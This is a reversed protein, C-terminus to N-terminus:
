KQAKLPEILNLDPRCIKQDPYPTAGAYNIRDLYNLILPMLDKGRLHGLLGSACVFEDFSTVKDAGTMKGVMLIPVPEGSHILEGRSATAHDSTIVLLNQQSWRKLPLQALAKDIEEIVEKKKKPDKLHAAEDPAKTHVFAFDYNKELKKLALKIKSYLDASAPKKKIQFFDLGVLQSLGNLMKSSAIMAGKLGFKDPFKVFSSPVKAAWKTVIFNLPDKRKLNIPHTSLSKYSSTLFENVMQATRRASLSDKAKVLPKVKLVPLNPFFPDSDTIESSVKGKLYLLGQRQSNYIFKLAIGDKEYPKLANSLEVLEEEEFTPVRKKIFFQCSEKAVSVFSGRIVVEDQDVEFGEGWAELLGRGPFDELDYGLLTFHALETSPALGPSLTFMLGNIGKKALSNLFSTQAAQLPTKNGLEPAPRDALGDLLIVLAKLKKEM